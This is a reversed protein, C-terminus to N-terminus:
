SEYYIAGKRIIRDNINKNEKEKQYSLSLSNKHLSKSVFTIQNHLTKTWITFSFPSSFFYMINVLFM